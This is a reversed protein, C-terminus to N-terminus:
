AAVLGGCVLFEVTQCGEWPQYVRGVTIEARSWVTGQHIATNHNRSDIVVVM